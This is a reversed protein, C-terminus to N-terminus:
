KVNYLEKITDLLKIRSFRLFNDYGIKNFLRSYIQSISYFEPIETGLFAQLTTNYKIIEEIKNRLEYELEKIWTLIKKNWNVLRLNTCSDSIAVCAYTNIHQELNLQAGTLIMHAVENRTM